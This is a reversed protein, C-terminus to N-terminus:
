NFVVEFIKFELKVLFIIEFEEILEYLIRVVNDMKGVFIKVDVKYCKLRFWNIYIFKLELRIKM